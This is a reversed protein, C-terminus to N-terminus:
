SVGTSPMSSRVSRRRAGTPRKSRRLLSVTSEGTSRLYSATSDVPFSVSVERAYNGPRSRQLAQHAKIGEVARSVGTFELSLDGSYSMGEVFERVSVRIIEKLKEAKM